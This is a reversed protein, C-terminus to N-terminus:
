SKERKQWAKMSTATPEMSKPITQDIAKVDPLAMEFGERANAQAKADKNYWLIEGVRKGREQKFTRHSFASSLKDIGEDQRFLKRLKEQANSYLDTRIWDLWRRFRSVEDQPPQDAHFTRITTDVVKAKAKRAHVSKVPADAAMKRKRKREVVPPKTMEAAAM